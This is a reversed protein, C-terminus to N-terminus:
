AARERAPMMGQVSDAVFGLIQAMGAMMDTGIRDALVAQANSWDAHAAAIAANGAPTLAAHRIRGRAQTVVVWGQRELPVLTRYLSTREMVLLDALVSLAVGGADGTERAIHRLVSFQVTSMGHPALAADYLRTVARSAKRLSTCACPITPSTSATTSSSSSEIM